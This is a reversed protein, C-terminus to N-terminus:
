MDHCKILSVLYTAKYLNTLFATNELSAPADGHTDCLRVRTQASCFSFIEFRCSSSLVFSQQWAKSLPPVSRNHSKLLSSQLHLM